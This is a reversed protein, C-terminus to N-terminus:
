KKWIGILSKIGKIIWAVVHALSIFLDEFIEILGQKLLPYFAIYLIAIYLYTYDM